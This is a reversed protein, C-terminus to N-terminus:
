TIWGERMAKVVAQTRDDVSLKQLINSIHAKVTYQSVCIKDAIEINNLGDALHQLVELERDTLPSEVKLNDPKLNEDLNNFQIMKNLVIKAIAPDLWVGGQAINQITSTLNNPKIDKLCYADAGAIFANLVEQDNSHSTLIIIKIDPNTEKIARTAEIGNIDPLGLDMLIVDPVVSGAMEIAIQGYEAEAVVKLSSDEELATKLGIRTLAHDEVIMLNIDQTM